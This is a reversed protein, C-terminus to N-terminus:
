TFYKYRKSRIARVSSPRRTRPLDGAPLGGRPQRGGARAGAVVTVVDKLLAGPPARYHPFYRVIDGQVLLPNTLGLYQYQQTKTKPTEAAGRQPAVRAVPGRSIYAWFLGSYQNRYSFLGPLSGLSVM